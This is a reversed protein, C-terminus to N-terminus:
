RKRALTLGDGIPLLTARVGRGVPIAVPNRAAATAVPTRWGALERPIVPTVPCVKLTGAPAVHVHGEPKPPAVHAPAQLALALLLLM